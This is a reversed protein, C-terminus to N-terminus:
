SQMAFYTKEFDIFAAGFRAVARYFVASGASDLDKFFSEFWPQMHREFFQQQAALDTTESIMVSIVECLAAVHDEPESVDANREFGLVKLDDRLDSLPQEMLFGTLYWSGYPVVEGRGLGIFLAHYEDAIEVVAHSRASLSLMAMSLMLEDSESEEVEDILSIQDLLAQDPGSRLLAALVAYASSRYQQEEIFSEADAEASTMAPANIDVMGEPM